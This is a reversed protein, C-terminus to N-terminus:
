NKRQLRDHLRYANHWFFRLFKHLLDARYIAFAIAHKRSRFFHLHLSINEKSDYVSHSQSLKFPSNEKIGFQANVQGRELYFDCSIPTKDSFHELTLTSASQPFSQLAPTLDNLTFGIVKFFLISSQIKTIASHKVMPKLNTGGVNYAVNGDAHYGVQLEGLPYEERGRRRLGNISDIVAGRHFTLPARGRLGEFSIKYEYFEGDRYLTNINIFKKVQASNGLQLYLRSPEKTYAM